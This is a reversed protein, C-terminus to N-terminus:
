CGTAACLTSSRWPRTPIARRMRRIAETLSAAVAPDARLTEAILAVHSPPPLKDLRLHVASKGERSRTSSTSWRIRPDLGLERYAGVLLLGEIPEEGLVLEFLGLPTRGAWQLDDVFCVVPRERSAVARLFDVSSRQARLQATLPDGPRTARAPVGGGPLPAPASVPTRGLATIARERVQALEDEPEALLLRYLANFAQFVGDM